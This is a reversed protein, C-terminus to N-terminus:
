YCVNKKTKRKTESFAEFIACHSHSFADFMKKRISRSLVIVLFNFSLLLKALEKLVKM